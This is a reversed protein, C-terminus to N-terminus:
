DQRLALLPDVASARRAPVYCAVGAVAILVGVAASVVGADVISLDGLPLLAIKGLVLAITAGFGIGCLTVVAGRRLIAGLVDIRNAGLAIRVGIERTRAAVDSSLLGYIGIMALLLACAAFGGMWALTLSPKRWTEQITDRMLRPEPVLSPDLEQLIKRAASMVPGPDTTAIRLTFAPLPWGTSQIHTFVEVRPELEKIDAAVNGVVGAIEWWTKGDRDLSVQAGVPNNGSARFYRDVFAQNVLLQKPAAPGERWPDLMRGALLPIGMAQFYGPSVGRFGYEKELTEAAIQTPQAPGRFLIEKRTQTGGSLPTRDVVGAVQVGPIQALRELANTTFSAVKSPPTDWSFPARVAVIQEPPNGFGLPRQRMDIFGRALVGTLLLMVLSLGIQVASLGGRLWSRGAPAHTHFGASLSVRSARWAPLLGFLLASILTVLMTFTLVRFDVAAEQLRPTGDPALLKLYDVGWSALAVGTVAGLASLLLSEILFLRVLSSRGAGIAARISAERQRELGRALLLGSLNFCAILLVAAVTSMLLLLPTKAEGAVVQELPRLSASLGADSDPYQSALQATIVRLEADAAAQTHHGALRAVVTLWGAKRSASQFARDPSWVMDSEDDPFPLRGQPLVGIIEFIGQKTNLQMGSLVPNAGFWRTWLSHSVWAVAPGEGRLEAATFTRGLAPQLRLVRPLDGIFRISAVRHREGGVQALLGDGYFGAISDFSKAQAAYDRVRNPNGGATTAGKREEVAFLRDPEDFPLPKLLVTDVISFIATNAGIGIGLSAVAICTFAPRRKLNRWAHRLERTFTDLWNLVDRDHTEDQLRARNGFKRLAMRRADRPSMGADVFEAIRMELHCQMEDAIEDAKSGGSWTARLRKWLGM